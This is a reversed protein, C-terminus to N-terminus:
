ELPRTGLLQYRRALRNYEEMRDRLEPMAAQRTTESRTELEVNGTRALAEVALSLDERATLIEFWRAPVSRMKM